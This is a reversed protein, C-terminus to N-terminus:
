TLLVGTGQASVVAATDADMQLVVGSGVFLNVAEPVSQTEGPALARAKIVLTATANSGIWLSFTHVLTDTNCVTLQLIKTTGTTAPGSYLTTATNALLTGPFLQVPTVAM